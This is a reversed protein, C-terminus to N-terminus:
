SLPPAIDNSALVKGLGLKGQGLRKSVEGRSQPNSGSDELSDESTAQM